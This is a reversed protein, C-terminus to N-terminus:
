PEGKLVVRNDLSRILKTVFVPLNARGSDKAHVISELFMRPIYYQTDELHIITGDERREIRKQLVYPLKARPKNLGRENLIMNECMCTYLALQNRYLGGFHPQIGICCM